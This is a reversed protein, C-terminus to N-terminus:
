DGSKLVIDVSIRHSGERSGKQSNNAKRNQLTKLQQSQVASQNAAAALIKDTASLVEILTLVDWEHGWFMEREKM